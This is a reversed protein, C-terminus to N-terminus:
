KGCAPPYSTKWVGTIAQDIPNASASQADKSPFLDSLNAPNANPDKFPDCLKGSNANLLYRTEWFREFRKSPFQRGLVLGSGFAVLVLGAGCAILASIKMAAEKIGAHM